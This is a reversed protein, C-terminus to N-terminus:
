YDGCLDTIRSGVDLPSSTRFSINLTFEPAHPTYVSRLLCRDLQGWAVPQFRAPPVEEDEPAGVAGRHGGKGDRSEPGRGLGDAPGRLFVVPLPAPQRLPILIPFLPPIPLHGQPFYQCLDGGAQHPRPPARGRLRFSLPRRLAPRTRTSPRRPPGGGLLTRLPHAGPSGAPPRRARSSGGQYSPAPPGSGTPSGSPGRPRRLPTILPVLYPAVSGASRRDSRGPM